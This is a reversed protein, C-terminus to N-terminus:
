KLQLLHFTDVQYKMRDNFPSNVLCSSWDPMDSEELVKEVHKDCRALMEGWQAYARYFPKLIEPLSVKLRDHKRDRDPDMSADWAGSYSGPSLWRRCDVRANGIAPVQSDELPRFKRIKEQSTNEFPPSKEHNKSDMSGGTGDETSMRRNFDARLTAGASTNKEIGKFERTYGLGLGAKGAFLKYLM